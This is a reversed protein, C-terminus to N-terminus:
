TWISCRPESNIGSYVLLHMKGRLDWPRMRGLRVNRLELRSIQLRPSPSRSHSGSLGYKSCGVM